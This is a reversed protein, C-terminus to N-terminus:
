AAGRRIVREAGPPLERQYVHGQLAAACAPCLPMRRLGYRATNRQWCGIGACATGPSPEGPGTTTIAAAAAQSTV